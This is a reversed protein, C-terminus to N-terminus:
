RLGASGEEGDESLFFFFIGNPAKVCRGWGGVGIKFLSQRERKGLLPRGRPACSGSFHAWATFETSGAPLGRGTLQRRSARCPAQAPPPRPAPERHFGLGWRERLGNAGLERGSMKDRLFRSGKKQVTPGRPFSTFGRPLGREYVGFGRRPKTSRSDPKTEPETSQAQIESERGARGVASTSLRNEPRGLRQM